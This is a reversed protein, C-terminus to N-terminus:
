SIPTNSFNQSVLEGVLYVVSTRLVYERRAYCFLHLRPVYFSLDDCIGCRQIRQRCYQAPGDDVDCLSIAPTLVWALTTRSHQSSWREQEMTRVVHSLEMFGLRWKGLSRFNTGLSVYCIYRGGRGDMASAGKGVGRKLLIPKM